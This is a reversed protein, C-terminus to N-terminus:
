SAACDAFSQSSNAEFRRSRASIDDTLARNVTGNVSVSDTEPMLTRYRGLEIGPVPDAEVIDRESEFLAERHEVEAALNLRGKQGIRLYSVDAEATERGGATAM